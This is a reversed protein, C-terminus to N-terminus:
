CIDRWQQAFVNSDRVYGKELQRWLCRQDIEITFVSTRSFLKIASGICCPTSGKKLSSIWTFWAIESEVVGLDSV